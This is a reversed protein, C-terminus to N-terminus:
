AQLTRKKTASTLAARSLASAAAYASAFVRASFSAAAAPFDSPSGSTMVVSCGGFGGRTPPTSANVNAAGGMSLPM